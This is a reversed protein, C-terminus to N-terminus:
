LVIVAAEDVQGLDYLLGPIYFLCVSLGPNPVLAPNFCEQKEYVQFFGEVLNGPLPEDFLQSHVSEWGGQDLSDVCYELAGSGPDSSIDNFHIYSDRM